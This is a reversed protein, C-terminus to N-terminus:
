GSIYQVNGVSSNGVKFNDVIEVLKL